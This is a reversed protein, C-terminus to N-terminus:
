FQETLAYVQPLFNKQTPHLIMVGANWSYAQDSIKLRTGNPLHFDTSQICDVFAHFPKGAPLKMDLLSNFKYECLHMFSMEDSAQSVLSYPDKVFFTDSDAYLLTDEVVNFSEEILAIKMRHLFDIEGRMTRIKEDTLLFYRISFEKLYPHFFDPNDTFLFTKQLDSENSHAYYSLICFVARRYEMENGFSQTVLIM